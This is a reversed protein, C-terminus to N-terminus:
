APLRGPEAARARRTTNIGTLSPRKEAPKLRIAIRPTRFRGGCISTLGSTHRGWGTAMVRRVTFRGTGGSRLEESMRAACVTAVTGSGDPLLSAVEIFTGLVEDDVSAKLGLDGPRRRDSM